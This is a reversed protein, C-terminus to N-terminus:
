YNEELLPQILSMFYKTNEADKGNEQPDGYKSIYFGIQQNSLHM